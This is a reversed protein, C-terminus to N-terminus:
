LVEGKLSVTVDCYPIKKGSEKIADKILGQLGFCCPVEMNVVTVSKIKAIKFLEVLKEKYFEVDDLKPCAIILSKGKLYDSHFNAYAFAVCDAAVVLDVNQFYPAAPNVLMLQVPWQRLESKQKIDPNM